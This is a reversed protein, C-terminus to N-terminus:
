QQSASCIKKWDFGAIDGLSENVVMRYWSKTKIKRYTLLILAITRWGHHRGNPLRLCFIRDEKVCDFIAKRLPSDLVESIFEHSQHCIKLKHIAGIKIPSEPRFSLLISGDNLGELNLFGTNFLSLSITEKHLTEPWIAQNRAKEVLRLSGKFIDFIADLEYNQDHLRHTEGLDTNHVVIEVSRLIEAKLNDQGNGVSARSRLL